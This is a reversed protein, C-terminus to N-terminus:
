DIYDVRQALHDAHLPLCSLAAFGEGMIRTYTLPWGCTKRMDV